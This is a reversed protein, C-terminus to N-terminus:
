KANNFSKQYMVNFLRLFAGLLLTESSQLAESVDVMTLESNAEQHSGDPQNNGKQIGTVDVAFAPYQRDSDKSDHFNGLFVWRNTDAPDLKYGGEEYLERVAAEYADADSNDITGTILTDAYNTERLPNWEKLVGIKEIIGGKSVTFPLVAVSVTKTHVGYKGNVEVIDFYPTEFLKNM